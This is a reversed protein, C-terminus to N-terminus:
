KTLSALEFIKKLNSKDTRFEDMPTEMIMPFKRLESSLIIKFGDEGIEGLGIHNHRDITSGLAGKSDNMHVLKLHKFGIIQDFRALTKTLGKESKVDYGKAYLHCTDLCVEIRDDDVRDIIQKIEEFTSGVENRKGSTNELLITLNPDTKRLTNRLASIIRKLGNDIGSGLHSGLHTVIHPIGLKQSREIEVELSKISKCYLDPKFTSLNPLYPMHSFVPWIDQNKLKDKFAQTEGERFKRHKWMRPNRTFVQFTNIDLEMARDVAKDIGGDISVHFGIRM